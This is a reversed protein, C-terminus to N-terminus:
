TSLTRPMMGLSVKSWRVQNRDLFISAILSVRERVLLTNSILREWAPPDSRPESCVLICDFWHISPWWFPDSVSPTLIRVVESADPRLHPDQDWCRQMLTWLKETFTPHAPRPPRGGQVVALLVQVDSRGSFPVAGTFIQLSRSYFTQACCIM